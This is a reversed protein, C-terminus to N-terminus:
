YLQKRDKKEIIIDKNGLLAKKRLITKRGEEWHLKRKCYFKREKELFSEKNRLLAKM